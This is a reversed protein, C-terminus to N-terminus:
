GSSPVFRGLEERCEATLTVVLMGESEGAAFSHSVEQGTDGLLERLRVLLREELM